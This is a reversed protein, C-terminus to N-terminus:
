HTLAEALASVDPTSTGDVVHWPALWDDAALGDYVTAVRAQLAEDSEWTDRGRGSETAERHASRSAAVTVPVRLLLHADPVPLGFRDIEVARVWDVFEGRASQRLRAAGFAANSAVYRDLLVVDNAALAARIDPAAGRRDLAYLMAMGYVEDGFGGLRGHLGERVLDAHIDEGYRPFALRVVRGGLEATLKDAMTRKGAGDLGEIVILRGM